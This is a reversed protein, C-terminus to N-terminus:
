IQIVVNYFTLIVDFVLLFFLLVHAIGALLPFLVFILCAAFFHALPMTQVIPLKEFRVAKPAGIDEKAQEPPKLDSAM